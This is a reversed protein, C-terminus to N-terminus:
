ERNKANLHENYTTTFTHSGDDGTRVFFLYDIDEPNVAAKISDIGPSSIPAPPLGANIYTNYKSDIRVDKNSLVPRREGLAYQVTACSQLPMDVELRNHFVGSMTPREKELVAEREIISALIMIQNTDMGLERGKLQIESTYVNNFADLMKKIIEEERADEFVEYTAPYLYGELTSEKPLDELFDYDDKFRDVDSTLALFKGKDVLNNDALRQAIQKLEFGEPITFSASAKSKGGKVLEDMIDEQSMATSLEYTGAKYQSSRDELKSYLKFILESKILDNEKLIHSITDTTSGEPIEIEKEVLKDASVAKTTKDLYVKTALLAGVIIIPIIIKFRKKKKHRTRRSTTSSKLM